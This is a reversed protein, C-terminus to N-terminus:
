GRVIEDWTVEKRTYIAARAMMATYMTEVASFVANEVARTRVGDVFANVADETIDYNTRVELPEEEPVPTRYGKDLPTEDVVKNFWRYGQRSTHM